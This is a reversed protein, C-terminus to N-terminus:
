SMSQRGAQRSRRAGFGPFFDRNATSTQAFTPSGQAAIAGAVIGACSELFPRRSRANESEVWRALLRASFDIM